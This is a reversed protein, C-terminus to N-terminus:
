EILTVSYTSISPHSHSISSLQSLVNSMRGNVWNCACGVGVMVEGDLKAYSISLRPQERVSGLVLARRAGQDHLPRDDTHM